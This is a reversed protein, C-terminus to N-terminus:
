TLTKKPHNRVIPKIILGKRAEPQKPNSTFIRANYFIVDRTPKM